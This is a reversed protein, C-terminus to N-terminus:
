SRGFLARRFHRMKGAMEPDERLRAMRSRFLALFVGFIFGLLTAGAVILGRKPFSRRDPVGAPDVVQIVAGEKAEDLKAVEYQHALLEFITEYYKVDRLRRVYELGAEPVNGKPVILSDTSSESGELKKLQAQLSALEQQAQILQPNGEAAFAQLASIQVEKATVQARLTEATAILARAQSDLQIMGTQMQTKKLAEEANALNNKAQELQGEFFLRRQGAETIALHESLHRFQDVYGNALEAARKPDHDVVSIHILGDKGNGEVTSHNEFAKEADSMLRAHYEQMLGFKQVMGEEVTRSRLMAVFMDNPNKLGLSSGAMSAMNSLSGMQMMLLSSLSTNQQPPMLTASATYRIPLLLSIVVALVAFVATTWLITSKREALEILLDLFTHGRRRRPELPFAAEDRESFSVETAM